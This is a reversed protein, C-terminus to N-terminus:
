GQLTRLLADAVSQRLVPVVGGGGAINVIDSGAARAVGGWAPSAGVSAFAAYDTTVQAERLESPTCLLQWSKATAIAQQVVFGDGRRDAAARTCLARWDRLGPDYARLRRAFADTDRARGVFVENGGYSWARKLVFRDPAAAVAAVLDTAATGDPLREPGAHLRRTWPVSEAIAAQEDEDLGMGAALAPDDTAMSLLAFTSKMELHPTAANLLLTRAAVGACLAAEVAPSPQSDLRHVFLHRYVLDLPVGDHRLWGDSWHLQDPHVIRADAGRACFRAAIHHLESLQADQRRCLLGIRIPARGRAREHLAGLADLLADTNAGNAGILASAAGAPAFAHLWAAAAIDSYAQMAPITTNAELARLARDEALFDIRAVALAEVSRWSAAVVRREAPSLADLLAGGDPQQLRWRAARLTASALRTALLTRRALESDAVVLPVAGIPIARTSGDAATVALGAAQAARALQAGVLPARTRALALLAHGAPTSRL